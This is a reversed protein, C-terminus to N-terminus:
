CACRIQCTAGVQPKMLRVPFTELHILCEKKTYLLRTTKSLCSTLLMSKPRFIMWGHQIRLRRYRPSQESEGVCGGCERVLDEM